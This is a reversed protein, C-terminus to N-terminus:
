EYGLAAVALEVAARLTKIQYMDRQHEQMRERHLNEAMLIAEDRAKISQAIEDNVADIRVQLSELQREFAARSKNILTSHSAKQHVERQDLRPTEGQVHLADKMPEPELKLSDLATEVASEFDTDVTPKNMDDGQM